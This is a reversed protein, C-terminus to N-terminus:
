PEVSDRGVGSFAAGIAQQNTGVISVFASGVGHKVADIALVSQWAAAAMLGEGLIKKPSIRRANWDEWALAEDEDYRPLNQVGDVLLTANYNETLQHRMRQVATARPRSQLFLHSDSVAALR